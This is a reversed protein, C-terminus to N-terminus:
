GARYGRTQSLHASQSVFGRILPILDQGIVVISFYQEFWTINHLKYSITQEKENQTNGGRARNGSGAYFNMHGTRTHVNIQPRSM